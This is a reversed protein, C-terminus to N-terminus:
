IRPSASIAWFNRSSAMSSCARHRLLVKAPEDTVRRGVLSQAERAPRSSRGARRRERRHAVDGLVERVLAAVQHRARLGLIEVAADFSQAFIEVPEIRAGARELLGACPGDRHLQADDGTEDLDLPHQHTVPEVLEHAGGVQVPRQAEQEQQRRPGPRHAAAVRRAAFAQTERELLQPRDEHLEALRQGRPAIQQRDVDGVFERLELIAHRREVAADRARDDLSRVAAGGFLHERLEVFLRERGRRDRLHVRRLQSGFHREVARLRAFDDHLHQAGAHVGHDRAIELHQVRERANRLAVPVAAAAQSGDFHHALVLLGNEILEVEHALRGVGDCSRRM